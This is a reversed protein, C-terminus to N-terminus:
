RAGGGGFSGGGGGFGGGGGLSFSGGFSSSGGSGSGTAVNISDITNSVVNDFFSTGGVGGFMNSSPTYLWWWSYPMIGYDNQVEEFNPEAIKFQKIAKNAVGLITAYVMFEGWVKVDSPPREGLNTFDCLWRKLAITKAHLEAGYQSRKKMIRSFFCCVATSVLLAITPILNMTLFVLVLSLAFIVGSAITLGSSIRMGKDDFLPEPKWEVIGVKAQWTDYARKMEEPNTKGFTKIDNFSVSDYGSGYRAGIDDFLFEITATDARNELTDAAETKTILYDDIVKDSLIKREKTTQIHELKIADIMHLHMIEATLDSTDEKGWRENRAVALPHANKDPVDRWYQEKFEPEPEKGYFYWVLTCIVIFLIALAIPIWFMLASILKKAEFQAKASELWASEESKISDLKNTQLNAVGSADTPVEVWTDPFVVRAEAYEEGKVLPVSISINGDNNNTLKSTLDGHGWALISGADPTQGEPVPLHINCVVNTSDDTYNSCFQWYLEACDGYVNICNTIACNVKAVLTEDSFSGFIYVKNEASDYSYCTQGPGGSDRWSTKFDVPSLQNDSGNSSLSVSNIIMESSDSLKGFPMILCTFDGYFTYQRDYEVSLTRDKSVTADIKTDGMSYSDAFALKSESAVSLLSSLIVTAMAVIICPLFHNKLYSFRPHRMCTNM